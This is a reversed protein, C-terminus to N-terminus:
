PETNKSFSPKIYCVICSATCLIKGPNDPKPNKLLSEQM